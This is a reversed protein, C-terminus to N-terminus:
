LLHHVENKLSQSTVGGVSAELLKAHMGDTGSENITPMLYASHAHSAELIDTPTCCSAQPTRQLSILIAKNTAPM